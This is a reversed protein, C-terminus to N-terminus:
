CLKIDYVCVIKVKKDDDGGGSTHEDINSINPEISDATDVASEM